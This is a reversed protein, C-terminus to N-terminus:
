EIKRTPTAKTMANTTPMVTPIIAAQRRPPSNSLMMTGPTMSQAREGGEEGTQENRRCAEPELEAPERELVRVDVSSTGPKLKVNRSLTKRWACSGIMTMESTKAPPHTSLMRVTIILVM